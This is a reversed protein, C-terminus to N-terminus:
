CLWNTSDMFNFCNRDRRNENQYLSRETYVAPLYRVGRLPSFCCDPPDIPNLLIEM